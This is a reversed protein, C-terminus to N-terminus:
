TVDINADQTRAMQDDLLIVDDSPAILDVNAVGEVSIMKAILKSRIVDESITLTNIFDKVAQAVNAVVTAQDFGEIVTIVATVAQIQVQPSKARALVGAARLGPYNDRDNPDGDIVKQAFAILGTFYTYGAVVQEGATLATTFTIQGTAPNLTYDVGQTLNGQVSTAINFPLDDKIPKFDLFLREEGGVAEGGPSLGETIIDTAKSSQTAGTPITDSGPNLVTISTNPVISDIEFWQGDSDLRIWEGASVESTDGTTVTTTGNWTYTAAITTAADVIAEATGTGDDVYVTVDGRNIQDEIVKAFLITTTTDPDQQGILGAEMAQVTCRALGSVFDKIRKRFADDSEKDLGKSFATPNTVEDVGAPKSVFKQITNASANGDKGPNVAIASVSNSDRGLGHGSIQEASYPTITGTTTTVFLVGSETKIRTGIPITVTGSTGARSFVVNGTAKSAAIRTIVAPQIDKAREDLDDGTASDISFLQLLLAMQYYQEDDQRASAALVHKWASTDAIDSLNTRTVVKAIMQALIQEYRKFQVKPM